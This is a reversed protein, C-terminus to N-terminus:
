DRDSELQRVLESVEAALKRQNESTTAISRVQSGTSTVSEHIEDFKESAKRSVEAGRAVHETSREIVEAIESAAESSREALKRVEGAVVSFGVGHEGARAAEIAANFALLNTQNAIDGIVGVIESVRDSSTQISEIAEISKHIAELGTVAHGTSLDALGAASESDNAIEIIQDTLVDLQEAMRAANTAIRRELEVEKTVDHAYKIVKVVQGNIDRIPNYTAQIWVDRAFKGVRHFRGSVFDGEALRLWFDRYEESKLYEADCFMSHHQGEIEHLMYGMAELFNRNASMVRGQLDFEIVAQAKDIASDKSEYEASKLRADTVDSAFKIVKIPKGDLGIVPNYTAQIWVEKGNRGVRKFEGAHFTGRALQEWFHAYSTGSATEEDVFIRHHRGVVEAESYGMLDLFNANATIVNGDLDFEIVAQARDIANVKAERDLSEIKADTVATAIKVIKIVNGEEDTVPNYSAQIWVPDGAKTIRKFEAVKFEGGRLKVWFAEYESSSAEEPDVFIRHHRDRVEDIGYGMLGLFNENANLITGDPTFEIIAQSRDLASLLLETEADSWDFDTLNHAEPQDSPSPASESSM